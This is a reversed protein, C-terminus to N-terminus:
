KIRFFLFRFPFPPPTQFCWPSVVYVIAGLVYFVGELIYWDWGMQLCAQRVGFKLAAHTM